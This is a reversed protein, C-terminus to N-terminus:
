PGGVVYKRGFPVLRVVIALPVTNVLLLDNGALLVHPRLGITIPYSGFGFYPALRLSGSDFDTYYVLDAGIFLVGIGGTFGLKPGWVPDDGRLILENSWHVDGAAFHHLQAVFARAVGFELVHYRSSAPKDITYAYGALLSFERFVKDQRIYQTRTTDQAYAHHLLFVHLLVILTPRM